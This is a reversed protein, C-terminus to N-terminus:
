DVLLFTPTPVELTSRLAPADGASLAFTTVTGSRQNAVYLRDGVVVLHRPWDGGCDISAVSPQLEGDEAVPVVSVRNSGRLGVYLTRGDDDLALGAAHDGPAAGHLPLSAVLTFAGDLRRLVFVEASLEGLVWVDGSPLLLLDRPGSGPPFPVAGARTLTTGNFSYVVVSDTGLDATLITTADVRLAGHAHPGDQAPHPGTGATRLVQAAPAPAGGTGLPHVAVAGDGYCAALLVHDVVTLACPYTGATPVTALAQLTDGDRRYASVTPGSEGAAYITTGARTLYSPSSAAAAVGRYHPEGDSDLHLLGIGTGTGDMEPTYGGVWIRRVPAGANVAPQSDSPVTSPSADPSTVTPRM